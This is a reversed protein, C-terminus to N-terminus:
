INEIKTPLLTNSQNVVRTNLKDAYVQFQRWMESAMHLALPYMKQRGM